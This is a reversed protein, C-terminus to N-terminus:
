LHFDIAGDKPSGCDGGTNAIGLFFIKPSQMKRLSLIILTDFSSSLHCDHFKLNDLIIDCLKGNVLIGKKVGPFQFERVFHTRDTFLISGSHFSRTRDAQLQDISFHLSVQRFYGFTSSNEEM